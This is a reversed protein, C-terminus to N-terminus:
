IDEGVSRRWYPRLTARAKYLNASVASPTIQLADAIETITVGDYIWGMVQRQRPPLLDLLELVTHRHELADLDTGPAILAAGLAGPELSDLDASPDELLTAVHRAYLRSAVLRCWAHPHRLTPWQQYAQVLAEQVCDAADPFSAGNWILFAMLKPAAVHHFATFAEVVAPDPAGSELQVATALQPPPPRRGSGDPGDPSARRDSM